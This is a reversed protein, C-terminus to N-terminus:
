EREKGLRINMGFMAFYPPGLGAEANFGFYESFYYRFGLVMQATARSRLKKENDYDQGSVSTYSWLSYAVRAGMYGDLKKGPSIHFMPRIGFNQHVLDDRFEGKVIMGSDSSYSNYFISISQYSYSIGASFINDAGYDYASFIVPTFSSSSKFDAINNPNIVSKMLSHTYPDLSYGAGFTLVHQRQWQQANVAAAFAFMLALLIKSLKM